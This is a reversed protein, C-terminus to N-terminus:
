PGAPPLSAWVGKAKEGCGATVERTRTDRYKDWCPIADTAENFATVLARGIPFHVTDAPQPFNRRIPESQLQRLCHGLPLPPCHARHPLARHRRAAPLQPPHARVPAAQPPCPPPLLPSSSSLLPLTGHRERSGCLLSCVSRGRISHPPRGWTVRYKDGARPGGRTLTGTGLEATFCKGQLLPLPPLAVDCVLHFLNIDCTSQM